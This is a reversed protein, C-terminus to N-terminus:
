FIDLITYLHRTLIAGELSSVLPNLVLFWSSVYKEDFLVKYEKYREGNKKSDLRKGKLLSHKINILKM